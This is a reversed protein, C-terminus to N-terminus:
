KKPLGGGNPANGYRIATELRSKKAHCDRCLPDLNADDETGGMWLPVRHDIEEALTVRGEATCHMCLPHASLLRDRRRQNAYGRLREVTAAKIGSQMVSIRPKLTTLRPM